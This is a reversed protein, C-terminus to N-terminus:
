CKTQACLTRTVCPLLSWLKPNIQLLVQLSWMDSMAENGSVVCIELHHRLCSASLLECLLGRLRFPGHYKCSPLSFVISFHFDM